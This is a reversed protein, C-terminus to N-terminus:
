IRELLGDTGESVHQVTEVAFSSVWRVTQEAGQLIHSVAEIHRKPIWSTLSMCQMKPNELRGVGDRGHRSPDMKGEPNNGTYTELGYFDVM